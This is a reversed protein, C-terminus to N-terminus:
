FRKQANGPADLRKQVQLEGAQGDLDDADLPAALAASRPAVFVHRSTGRDEETM